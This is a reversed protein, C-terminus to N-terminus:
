DENEKATNPEIIAGIFRSSPTTRPCSENEDSDNVNDRLRDNPSKV